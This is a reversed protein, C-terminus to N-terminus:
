SHDLMKTFQVDVLSSDRQHLTQERLPRDQWSAFVDVWEGTPGGVRRKEVLFGRTGSSGIGPCCASDGNRSFASVGVRRGTLVQRIPRSMARLARFGINTM